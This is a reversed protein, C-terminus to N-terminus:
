LILFISESIPDVDKGTPCSRAYVPVNDMNSSSWAKLSFLVELITELYMRFFM